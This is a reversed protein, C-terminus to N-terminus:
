FHEICNAFWNLYKFRSKFFRSINKDSYRNIKGPSSVLIGTAACYVILLYNTWRAIFLYLRFEFVTNISKLMNMVISFLLIENKEKESLFPIKNQWEVDFLTNIMQSESQYFKRKIEYLLKFFYGDMDQVLYRRDISKLPDWVQGHWFQHIWQWTGLCCCCPQLQTQALRLFSSDLYWWPCM